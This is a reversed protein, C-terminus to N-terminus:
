GGLLRDFLWFSGSCGVAYPAVRAPGGPWRALVPRLLAGAALLSAVFVLQGIEVGLNFSLLALPIAGAPLGVETLAGAFGLGHLLGFLAAGLPAAARARRASGAPPVGRVLEMGLWVLSAAIAVEILRVPFAVLGLVAASLTVSHGLTFATLTWFLPAGRASLAVLGFLFVLHDFGGLIHRVGLAGYSRAVALASEREPIRFRAREGRLVERFSRGDALRVTLLADTRSAGLGDIGVERGVLSRGSCEARFRAVSGSGEVSWAPGDRVTCDGPLVPQPAGARATRTPTKWRVALEGITVEDLELLSPALPHAQATAALLPLALLLARPDLM